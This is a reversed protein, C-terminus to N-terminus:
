EIYGDKIMKIMCEAIDPDFQTGSNDKLEDLIMKKNLHKRYCRNSNMADYADAVCIIRSYLPIEDGKLGSPYGTGDYREHHYMAGDYIGDIATYNELIKGGKTTHSQIIDKEEFDLKNPKNLIADPIGIKGCDHMLAIYYLDQIENDTLHLHKAIKASYEAVRVSHGKTYEDKADIMEAFTKFSQIIIEQDKQQQKRYQKMRIELIVTIILSIFWIASLANLIWFLPQQKLIRIRYGSLKFSTINMAEKSYLVCGFSVPDDKLVEMNYDEPTITVIKGKKSYKGDWASDIEAEMPLTMKLKWPTVKNKSTNYITGDYQAGERYVKKGNQDHYSDNWRKTIVLEVKLGNIEMTHRKNDLNVVIEKNNEYKLWANLGIFGLGIVLFTSIYIIIYLKGSKKM